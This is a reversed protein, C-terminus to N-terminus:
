VLKQWEILLVKHCSLYQKLTHPQAEFQGHENSTFKRNMKNFWITLVYILQQRWQQCLEAPMETSLAAKSKLMEWYHRSYISIIDHINFPSYVGSTLGSSPRQCTDSALHLNAYPGASAVAVWKRKSWYIWIPKVLIIRRKQHWSVWTTRWFLGNFSHILLLLLTTECWTSSVEDPLTKNAPPHHLDPCTTSSEGPASRSTEEPGSDAAARDAEQVTWGAGADVDAGGDAHVSVQCRGTSGETPVAVRRATGAV